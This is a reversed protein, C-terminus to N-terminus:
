IGIPFYYEKIRLIVRLLTMVVLGIALISFNISHRNYYGMEKARYEMDQEMYKAEYYGHHFNNYAHSKDGVHSFATVIVNFPKNTNVSLLADYGIIHEKDNIFISQKKAKVKGGEIGSDQADESIYGVLNTEVSNGTNIDKCKLTELEAFLKKSSVQGYTRATLICGEFKNQYGGLISDFNNVPFSMYGPESLAIRDPNEYDVSTFTMSHLPRLNYVIGPKIYTNHYPNQINKADDAFTINTKFLFLLVLFCIERM